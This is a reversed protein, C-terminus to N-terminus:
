LGEKNQSSFQNMSPFNSQDSPLFHFEVSRDHCKIFNPHAIIMNNDSVALILESRRKQHHLIEFLSFCSYENILGLYYITQFIRGNCEVIM